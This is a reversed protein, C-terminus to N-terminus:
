VELASSESCLIGCTKKCNNKTFNRTTKWKNAFFFFNWSFTQSIYGFLKERFNESVPFRTFDTNYSHFIWVQTFRELISMNPKELFPRWHCKFNVFHRIDSIFCSRITGAIGARDCRVVDRCDGETSLRFIMWLCLDTM